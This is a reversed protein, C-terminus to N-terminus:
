HRPELGSAWCEWVMAQAVVHGIFNIGSPVSWHGSPRWIPADPHLATCQPVEDWLPQQAASCLTPQDKVRAQSDSVRPLVRGQGRRGTHRTTQALTDGEKAGSERRFFFLPHRQPTPLCSAVLSSRLHILQPSPPVTSWLRRM